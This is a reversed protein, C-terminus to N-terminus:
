PYIRHLEKHHKQCLWMVDLPKTYDQHHAHSKKDGCWCPQKVLKGSRLAKAVRNHASTKERNKQRWLATSARREAKHNLNYRRVSAKRSDTVQRSDNRKRALNNISNNSLWGSMRCTASCYTQHPHFRSPSFERWCYACSKM